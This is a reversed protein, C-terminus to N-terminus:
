ESIVWKGNQLLFVAEWASELQYKAMASTGCRVSHKFIAVPKQYSDSLIQAIQGPKELKKWGLKEVEDSNLFRDLFGM